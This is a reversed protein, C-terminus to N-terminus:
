LFAKLNEKLGHRKLKQLTRNQIQRVRERSVNMMGWSM